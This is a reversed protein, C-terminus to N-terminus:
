AYRTYFIIHRKLVLTSFVISATLLTFLGLGPLFSEFDGLSQAQSSYLVDFLFGALVIEYGQTKALLVAAPILAVWWPFIFVSLFLFANLILRTSHQTM